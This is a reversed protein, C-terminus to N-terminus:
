EPELDRAIDALSADPRGPPAYVVRTGPTRLGYAVGAEIVDLHISDGPSLGAHDVWPGLRDDGDGERAQRRNTAVHRIVPQGDLTEAVRAYGGEGDLALWIVDERDLSLNEPLAVQVRDTRGVAALSARHTEVADHDSAIKETM